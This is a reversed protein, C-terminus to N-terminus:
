AVAARQATLLNEFQSYIENPDFQEMATAKCIEQMKQLQKPADLLTGIANAVDTPDPHVSAFVVGTVGDEVVEETGGAPTCIAPVGNHQAEILVNPLGEAQPVHLILDAQSLWFGIDESLGIHFVRDKAIEKATLKQAPPTFSGGGIHIFRTNPHTKLTEIASQVWLLPQKVPDCRFVGIVTRKCEPSLSKIKRWRSLTQASATLAPKPVANGVVNITHEPFRLWDQYANATKLNNTTFIVSPDSFMTEYLPAYERRFFKLRQNPPLGRFSCLLSPVGAIAAAIAGPLIAGDQWLVLNRPRRRQLVKTLARVPQQLDRPLAAILDIFPGSPLTDAVPLECLVDLPVSAAELKPVLFDGNRAPDTHRVAVSIPSLSANAGLAVALRVMQREAGGPGLQGTYFLTGTGNVKTVRQRAKKYLYAPVDNIERLDYRELIDSQQGAANKLAEAKPGLKQASALLRKSQRPEGMLYLFKAYAVQDRLALPRSLANFHEAAPGIARLDTLGLWFLTSREAPDLVTNLHANLRDLGGRIDGCYRAEKLESRLAFPLSM